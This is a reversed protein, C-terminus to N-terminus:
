LLPFYHINAKRLFWEIIPNTNEQISLGDMGNSKNYAEMASVIDQLSVTDELTLEKIQICEHKDKGYVTPFWIRGKKFDKLVMDLLAHLELEM